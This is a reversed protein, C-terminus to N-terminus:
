MKYSLLLSKGSFYSALLALRMFVQLCLVALASTFSSLLLKYAFLAFYVLLSAALRPWANVSSHSDYSSSSM